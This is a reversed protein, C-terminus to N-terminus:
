LSLVIINARNATRTRIRMIMNAKTGLAMNTLMSTPTSMHIRSQKGTMRCMRTNMRILTNTYLAVATNIPSDRRLTMIHTTMIIMIVMGMSTISM